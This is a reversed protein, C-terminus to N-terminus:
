AALDQEVIAAVARAVERAITADPEVLPLRLDPRMLGIRSLATKLVPPGERSLLAEL